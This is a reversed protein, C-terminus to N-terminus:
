SRGRWPAPREWGDRTSTGGGTAQEGLLHNTYAPDIPAPEIRIQDLGAELEEALLMTLSTMVGQGMEARALRLQIRGDAHLSIWANPEFRSPAPTENTEARAPWVWGLALGGGSLAIIKLLDRRTFAAASGSDAV